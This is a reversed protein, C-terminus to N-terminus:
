AAAPALVFVITDLHYDGTLQQVQDTVTIVSEFDTGPVFVLMPGGATLNGFISVVRMGIVAGTLTVAGASAAGTGKLTKMGTLDVKALSVQAPGLTLTGASADLTGGANIILSGTKSTGNGVDWEAGGQKEFNGTVYTNDAAM